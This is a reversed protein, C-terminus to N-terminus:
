RRVTAPLSNEALSKPVQDPVSSAADASAAIGGTLAALPRRRATM